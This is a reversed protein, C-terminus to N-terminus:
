QQPPRTDITATSLSGVPMMPYPQGQSYATL